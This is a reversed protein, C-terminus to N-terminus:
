KEPSSLVKKPQWLEQNMNWEAIALFHGERDYVRALGYPGLENPGTIAMNERAIDYRFANGHLVREITAEDLVLAPYQQLASDIPFLFEQITDLALADALQELTSSESLSFPGSRTRVLAGLHAGCGLQEGLDYALSRIYTGKSCEVALTLRPTDWALIHLDRIVVPRAALSIDEGSRVRKYAPQGQIKIASYRPPMQMQPGLFHQLVESIQLMTLDPVDAIRVITGEGDYTDTVVGFVIEAQYAKGSESLYEAIRTGQGICIPLVGSAAPDLTGAHGVRKQKLLKRIRAVVDHSTIGIPKNINLIGDM